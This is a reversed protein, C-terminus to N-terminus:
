HSANTLNTPNLVFPKVLIHDEKKGYFNVYITAGKELCETYRAGIIDAIRQIENSEIIKNEYLPDTGDYIRKLIIKTGTVKKIENDSSPIPEIHPEQNEM